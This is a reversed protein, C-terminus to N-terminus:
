MNSSIQVVCIEPNNVFLTYRGKTSRISIGWRNKKVSTIEDYSLDFSHIRILFDWAKFGRGVIGNDYIHIENKRTGVATRWAVLVLIIVLVVLDAFFPFSPLDEWLWYFEKRLQWNNLRSYFAIAINILLIVVAIWTWKMSKNNKGSDTFLLRRDDSM